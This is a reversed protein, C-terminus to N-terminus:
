ITSTGMVAVGPGVKVGVLVGVALAALAAVEASQGQHNSTSSSIKSM